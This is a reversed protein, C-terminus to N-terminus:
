KIKQMDPTIAAPLLVPTKSKSSSTNKAQPLPQAIKPTPSVDVVRYVWPTGSVKNIFLLYNDDSSIALNTMDINTSGLDVPSMIKNTELTATNISWLDDSFSILGQYWQDPYIGEQLSQPVACYILLKNKFSWVCKEPLTHLAISRSEKKTTNYLSLFPIGGQNEAYLVSNGDPSTLTTLGNINGLIKRSTKTETNVFFLYGPVNASPKTTLTVLKQNPFQPLWEGFASTFIKSANVSKPSAVFGAMGEGDNLLYFFKDSNNGAAAVFPITDPLFVEETKLFSDKVASSAGTKLSPASAGLTLVHTKILGDQQDDLFRTLVSNGSNVWVAEAIKPRTENSLRTEAFTDLSSEFINGLGREIYRATILLNAGKGSEFFGAGAVPTNHLEYLRPLPAGSGPVFKQKATSQPAGSFTGSNSPFVVGAKPTEPVAKRSLYWYAGGGVLVLSSIVSIIIITKREM